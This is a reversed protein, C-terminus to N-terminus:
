LGVKIVRSNQQIMSNEDLFCPEFRKPQTIVKMWPRVRMGVFTVGPNQYSGCGRACALDSEAGSYGAWQESVM